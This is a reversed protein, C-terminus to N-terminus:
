SWWDAPIFTCDVWLLDVGKVLKLNYATIVYYMCLYSTLYFLLLTLRKSEKNKRCLNSQLCFSFLKFATEDDLKLRFM